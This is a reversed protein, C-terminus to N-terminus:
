VSPQMRTEYAKPRYLTHSM